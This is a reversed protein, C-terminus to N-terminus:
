KEETYKKKLETIDVLNRNFKDIMYSDGGIMVVAIEKGNYTIQATENVPRVGLNVEKIEDNSFYVAKISKYEFSSGIYAYDEKLVVEDKNHRFLFAVLAELKEIRKTLDKDEGIM